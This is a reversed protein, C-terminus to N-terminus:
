PDNNHGGIQCGDRAEAVGLFTVRARQMVGPEPEDVFKGPPGAPLKTILLPEVRVNATDSEGAIFDPEDFRLAVHVQTAARKAAHQVIVAKGYTIQEDGMVLDIELWAGNSQFLTPAVTTM